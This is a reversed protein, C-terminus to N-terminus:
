PAEQISNQGAVCRDYIALFATHEEEHTWGNLFGERTAVRDAYEFCEYSDDELFETNEVSFITSIFMVMALLSFVKRKM